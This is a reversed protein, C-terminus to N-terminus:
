HKQAGLAGVSLMSASQSVRALARSCHSVISLKGGAPTSLALARAPLKTNHAAKPGWLAFHGRATPAKDAGVQVARM